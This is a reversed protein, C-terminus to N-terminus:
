SCVSLLKGVKVLSCTLATSDTAMSVPARWSAALSPTATTSAAGMTLIALLITM